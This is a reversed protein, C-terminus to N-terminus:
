FCKSIFPESNLDANRGFILQKSLFNQIQTMMEKLYQNGVPLLKESNSDANRWLIFM